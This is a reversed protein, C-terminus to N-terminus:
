RDGVIMDYDQSVSAPYSATVAAFMTTPDFFAEARARGAQAMGQRLDSSELLRLIAEAYANADDPTVLLGTEGDAVVDSVPPLRPGVVPVGMAMAEVFAIGLGERRTPLCFVDALRLLRLVDRDDPRFGTFHVRALKLHQSTARLEAELPGGGLVVFQTEPRRALVHVAAHLLTDIGKFPVLRGVCAVIPGRDLGLEHRLAEAEAETAAFWSLERLPAGVVTNARRGHIREAEAAELIAPNTFLVADTLRGLVREIAAFISRRPGRPFDRFYLDHATHVIFPCGAARAALRVLVGDKSTHTHVVDFRHARFFRWLRLLAAADSWPRIAYRFPVLHVPFGTGALEEIASVYGPPIDEGCGFEVILGHERQYRALPLNFSKHMVSTTAFHIVRLPAASPSRSTMRRQM